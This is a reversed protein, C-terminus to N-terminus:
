VRKELRARTDREQVKGLSVKRCNFVRRHIVNHPIEIEKYLGRDGKEGISRKRETYLMGWLVDRWV